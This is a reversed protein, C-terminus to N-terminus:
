FEASEFMHVLAQEVRSWFAEKEFDGQRGWIGGM